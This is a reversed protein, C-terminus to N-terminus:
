MESVLDPPLGRGMKNLVEQTITEAEKVKAAKQNQRTSKKGAKPVPKRGEDYAELLSEPDESSYIETIANVFQDCLEQAIQRKKHASTRYRGCLLLMNGHPPHVEAVFRELFHRGVKDEDYFAFFSTDEAQSPGCPHHIALCAHPRATPLVSTARQQSSTRAARFV